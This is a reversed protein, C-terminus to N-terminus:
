EVGKEVDYVDASKYLYGTDLSRSTKKMRSIAPRRLVFELGWITM